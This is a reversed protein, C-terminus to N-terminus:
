ASDSVMARDERLSDSDELVDYLTLSPRREHLIYLKPHSNTNPLSLKSALVALLNTHRVTSLRRLDDALSKLKKRGHTTSYYRTGFEVVILELQLPNDSPHIPEAQWVTGLCETFPSYRNRSSTAFCSDGKHSQFLKVHSFRVGEWVVEEPFSVIQPSDEGPGTETADSQARERTKNLRAREAQQRETETRIQEEIEHARQAERQLAAETEAEERQRRAQPFFCRERSSSRRTHPPSVQEAELARRTMETALSGVPEVVPAVNNQLWDQAANM